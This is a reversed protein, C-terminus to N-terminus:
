FLLISLKYGGSHSTMHSICLVMVALNFVVSFNLYGIIVTKVTIQLSGPIM